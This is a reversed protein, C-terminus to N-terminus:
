LMRNLDREFLHPCLLTLVTWCNLQQLCNFIKFIQPLFSRNFSTVEKAGSYLVVATYMDNIQIDSPINGSYKLWLENRTLLHPQFVQSYFVSISTSVTPLTNVMSFSSNWKFRLPPISGHMRLILVATLTRCLECEAVTCCNPPGWLAYPPSAPLQNGGLSLCWVM